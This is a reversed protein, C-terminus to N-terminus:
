VSLCSIDSIEVLIFLAWLMRGRADGETVDAINGKLITALDRAGSLVGSLGDPLEWYLGGLLEWSLGGSLRGALRGILRGVLRGTLRGVLRGVLRGASGGEAISFSMTRTSPDQHPDSVLVLDLMKRRASIIPM